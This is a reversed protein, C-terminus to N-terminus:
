NWVFLPLLDRRPALNCAKNRILLQEPRQGRCRAAHPRRQSHVDPSCGLALVICKEQQQCIARRPSLLNPWCLCKWCGSRLPEVNELSVSPFTGLRHAAKLWSDLLIHETSLSARRRRVARGLCHFNSFTILTYSYFTAVM